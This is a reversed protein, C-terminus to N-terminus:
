KATIVGKMLAFHGPFSCFYEYKGAAPAKFIISDTEGPGLLKTHVIIQGKSEADQPIYENAAATAAKPAIAMLNAGAKLIVLNHGMAVKPAKGVNKLTIKVTEGVKVELAKKDFQMADNCEVVIERDAKVAEKKEAVKAEQSFATVPAFSLLAAAACLSTTINKM